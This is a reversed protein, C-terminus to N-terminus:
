YKSVSVLKSSYSALFRFDSNMWDQALSFDKVVLNIIEKLDSIPTTIVDSDKTISRFGYNILISGGGM